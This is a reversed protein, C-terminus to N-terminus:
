APGAGAQALGMLLRVLQPQRHTDTKTFLHKLHTAVTNESVGLQAAVAAPSDGMLLCEAVRCEAQTIGFLRALLAADLRLRAAPDAMFVIAAANLLRAPVDTHPSLPAMRLVLHGGDRRALRLGHSFHRVALPDTGLVSRVEAEILRTERPGDGRLWGLRDTLPNGARLGLGDGGQVLVQATSNLFLVEGRSGLLAVGGLLRDLAQLSAALKLEADRLRNMTGIARSLHNVVLRHLQKSGADFPADDTGRHVTCVVPVQSAAEECFVVGTCMHRQGYRSMFERYFLSQVLQVDPVLDQGLEVNGDRIVGLRLGAETWPDYPVYRPWEQLMQESVGHTIAYGGDAPATAPTFLMATRSGHLVALGEMAAGWGQPELAAAYIRDVLQSFAELQSSHM